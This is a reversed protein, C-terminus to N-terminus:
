QVPDVCVGSSWLQGFYKKTRHLATPLHLGEPIKQVGEVIPRAFKADEIGVGGVVVRGLKTTKGSCLVTRWWRVRVELFKYFLVLCSVTERQM